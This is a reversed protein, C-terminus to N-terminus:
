RDDRLMDRLSRDGGVPHELEFLVKQAWARADDPAYHNDKTNRGLNRRDTKDDSAVYRCGSATVTRKLDAAFSDFTKPPVFMDATEPPGIWICASGQAHIAAILNEADRLKRQRNGIVMNVGLAVVTVKREAGLDAYLEALPPIHGGRSHLCDKIPRGGGCVWAGCDILSKEKVIWDDAGAGCKAFIKVALTRGTTPDRMTRLADYLAGGFPGECNSDGLILIGAPLPAGWCPVSFLAALAWAAFFRRM